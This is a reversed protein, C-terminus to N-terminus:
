RIRAIRTGDERVIQVQSAHREVVALASADRPLDESLEAARKRGIEIVLPGEEDEASFTMWLESTDVLQLIRM